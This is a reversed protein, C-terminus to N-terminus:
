QRPFLDMQKYAQVSIGLPTPDDLSDIAYKYLRNDNVALFSRSDLWHYTELDGAITSYKQTAAEYLYTTGSLKSFVIYRDDPSWAAYDYADTTNVENPIFSSLAQRSSLQQIDAIYLSSETRTFLKPQTKAWTAQLGFGIQETTQNALTLVEKSSTIDNFNNTNYRTFTLYKGDASLALFELRDTSSWIKETYGSKIRYKFISYYEDYFRSESSDVNDVLYSDIFYVAKGDPDAAFNLPM